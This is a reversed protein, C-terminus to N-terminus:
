RSVLRVALEAAHANSPAVIVGARELTRCQLSYCQPDRETGTVSAVIRARYAGARALASAVVGAPDAHSGYGIVVDLLVVGVHADTLARVIAESRIEPDIMPHPRGRTFADDGLDLM